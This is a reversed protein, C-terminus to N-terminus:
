IGQSFFVERTWHEPPHKVKPADIVGSIYQETHM